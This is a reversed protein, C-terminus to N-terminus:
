LQDYDSAQARTDRKTFCQVMQKIRFGCKYPSYYIYTYCKHNWLEFISPDHLRYLKRLSSSKYVCKFFTFENKHIHSSASINDSYLIWGKGQCSQLLVFMHRAQLIPRKVRLTSTVVISACYSPIPSTPDAHYSGAISGRHGVM